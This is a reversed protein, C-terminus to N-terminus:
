TCDLSTLSYIPRNLSWCPGPNTKTQFLSTITSIMETWISALQPNNQKTYRFTRHGHLSSQELERICVDDVTLESRPYPNSASSHYCRYALRLLVAILHSCCRTSPSVSNGELGRWPLPLITVWAAERSARGQGGGALPESILKWKGRRRTSDRVNEGTEGFDLFKPEWAWRWAGM